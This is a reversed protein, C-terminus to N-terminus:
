GGSRLFKKTAEAPTLIEGDVLMRGSYGGGEAFEWAVSHGERALKAWETRKTPNQEIWFGGDDAKFSRLRGHGTRDTWSSMDALTPPM